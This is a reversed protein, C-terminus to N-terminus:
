DQGQGPIEHRLGMAALGAMVTAIGAEASGQSIQYGGFVLAAIGVAYVKYKSVLASMNM